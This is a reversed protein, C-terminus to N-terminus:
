VIGTLRVITGVYGGCWEKGLSGEACCHEVPALAAIQFLRMRNTSM